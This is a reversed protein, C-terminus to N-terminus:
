TILIMINSALLMISLIILSINLLLQAQANEYMWKWDEILKSFFTNEKFPDEGWNLKQGCWECFHGKKMRHKNAFTNKIQVGQGCNPCYGGANKNSRMLFNVKMTKQKNIYYDCTESNVFPIGSTHAWDNCVDNHICNDCNKIM